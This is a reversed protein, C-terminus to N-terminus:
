IRTSWIRLNLFMCNRVSRLEDVQLSNHILNLNKLLSNDTLGLNFSVEDDDLTTIVYPIPKPNKRPVANKKQNLALPRRLTQVKSKEWSIEEWM